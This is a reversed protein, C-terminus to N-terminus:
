QIKCNKTEQQHILECIDSCVKNDLTDPLLDSPFKEKYTTYADRVLKEFARHHIKKGAEYYSNLKLMVPFYQNRYFVPDNNMFFSLDDTLDYGLELKKEPDNDFLETIIM